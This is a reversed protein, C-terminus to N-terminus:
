QSPSGSASQSGMSPPATVPTIASPSEVTLESKARADWALAGAEVVGPWSDVYHSPEGPGSDDIWFARGTGPRRVDVHVFKSNPYYGCGVDDLTRCLKFLAANPIGMVNIDMARAEAHMSHHGRAGQAPPPRYGSFVYIIRRPFADAVRQLLWLLRPHVPRVSPIWEGKAWADADPEDPLLDGPDPTEPPRMMISLRDLAASAVAGDCQVLDFSSREAGHRVFTVPRRRCKWNPVPKVPPAWLADFGNSVFSPGTSALLSTVWEARPSFTSPGGSVVDGLWGRELTAMHLGGDAPEGLMEYGDTAGSMSLSTDEMRERAPQWSLSWWPDQRWRGWRGGLYLRMPGPREIEANQFASLLTLSAAEDRLKFTFIKPPEDLLGVAAAPAPRLLVVLGLAGIMSGARLGMERITRRSKM